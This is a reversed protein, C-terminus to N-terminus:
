CKELDLRIQIQVRRARVYRPIIRHTSIGRVQHGTNELGGTELVAQSSYRPNLASSPGTEVVIIKSGRKIIWNRFISRCVLLNPLPRERNKAGDNWQCLTGAQFYGHM